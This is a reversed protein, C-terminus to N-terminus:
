LFGGRIAYREVRPESLAMKAILRLSVVLALLYKAEDNRMALRRCFVIKM